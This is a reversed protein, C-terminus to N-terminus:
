ACWPFPFIKFISKILRDEIKDSSDYKKPQVGKGIFAIYDIMDKTIKDDLFSEKYKVLFYYILYPQKLRYIKEKGVPKRDVTTTEYRNTLMVGDKFVAPEIFDLNILKKLHHDITKKDKKLEESLQSISVGFSCILCIFIQRPIIQRFISILEKEIRGIKSSPYFRTYGMISKKCIFENKLLQRLHHKVTGESLNIEKIIKRQHVGPYNLIFDYIIKRNKLDLIRNKSNM